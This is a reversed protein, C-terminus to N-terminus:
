PTNLANKARNFANVLAGRIGAADTIIVATAVAAVFAALLGYEILDEGREDRIFRRVWRHM